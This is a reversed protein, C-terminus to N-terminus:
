SDGRTNEEGLTAIEQPTEERNEAEAPEALAEILFDVGMRAETLEQLLDELRTRLRPGDDAIRAETVLGTARMLTHDVMDLFDNRLWQEM